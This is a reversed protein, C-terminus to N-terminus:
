PRVYHDFIKNNIQDSKTAAIEICKQVRDEIPGATFQLTHGIFTETPDLCSRVEYHIQGDSFDVVSSKGSGDHYTSTGIGLEGNKKKGAILIQANTKPDIKMMNASATACFAVYDELGHKQKNNILDKLKNVIPLCHQTQGAFAICTGDNCVVFKRYDEQVMTNGRQDTWICRGDTAVYIIDKNGIAIIISM